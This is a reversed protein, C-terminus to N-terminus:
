PKPNLTPPIARKPVNRCTCCCWCSSCVCTKLRSRYFNGLFQHLLDNWSVTNVSSETKAHLYPGRKGDCRPLGLHTPLLNSLASNANALCTVSFSTYIRIFYYVLILNSPLPPQWKPCMKAHVVIGVTLKLFNLDYHM